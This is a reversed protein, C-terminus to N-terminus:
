AGTGVQTHVEESVVKEPPISRTMAVAQTTTTTVDAIAARPADSILGKAQMKQTKFFKEAIMAALVEGDKHSSNKLYDNVGGEVTAKM